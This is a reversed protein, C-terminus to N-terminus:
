SLPLTRVDILMPPPPLLLLTCLRAAAASSQTSTSAAAPPPLTHSACGHAGVHLGDDAAHHRLLDLLRGGGDAGLHAEEEVVAEDLYACLCQCLLVRDHVRM